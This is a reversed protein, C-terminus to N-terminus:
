YFIRRGTRLDRYWAIKSSLRKKPKDEKVIPTRDESGDTYVKLLSRGEENEIIEVKRFRKAMDLSRSFEAM